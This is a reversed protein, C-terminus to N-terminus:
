RTTYHSGDFGYHRQPTHPHNVKSIYVGNNCKVNNQPPLEGYEM